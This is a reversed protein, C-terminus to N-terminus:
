KMEKTIVIMKMMMVLMKKSIASMKKTIALDKCLIGPEFSVSANPCKLVFLGGEGM